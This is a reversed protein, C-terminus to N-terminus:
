PLIGINECDVWGTSGNPLYIMVRKQINIKRANKNSLLIVSGETLVDVKKSTQENAFITSSSLLSAEKIFYQVVIQFIIFAIFILNAFFSVKFITKIIKQQNYIKYCCYAISTVMVALLLLISSQNSHICRSIKSVVDIFNINQKASSGSCKQLAINMNQMAAADNPRLALANRYCWIGKGYQKQKVFANGSNYYISYTKPETRLLQEYITTAMEYQMNVYHLNASAFLSDRNTARVMCSSCILLLIFIKKM